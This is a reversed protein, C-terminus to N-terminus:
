ALRALFRKTMGGFTDAEAGLKELLEALGCQRGLNWAAVLFKGTEADRHWSEFRSELLNALSAAAAAARLRHTTAFWASTEELLLGPHFRALTADTILDTAEQATSGAALDLEAEFLGALRRTAALHLTQLERAADKSKAFDLVRALWDKELPALSLLAGWALPVAADGLVRDEMPLSPPTWAAALARGWDGLAAAWAPVGDELHLLFHVEGPVKRRAVVSPPAAAAGRHLKGHASADLGMWKLAGELVKSMRDRPAPLTKRIEFRAWDIDHAEATDLSADHRKLLWGLNERYADRTAELFKRADAAVKALEIGELREFVGRPDKAGRRQAEEHRRRALEVRGDAVSAAAEAMAREGAARAARVPARDRMQRLAAWGSNSGDPLRAGSRDLRDEAELVAEREAVRFRAWAIGARLARHRRLLVPDGKAEAATVADEAAQESDASLAKPFRAALAVPDTNRVAAFETEGLWNELQRRIDDLM